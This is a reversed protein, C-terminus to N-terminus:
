MLLKTSVRIIKQRINRNKIRIRLGSVWGQVLVSYYCQKTSLALKILERARKWKSALSGEAEMFM